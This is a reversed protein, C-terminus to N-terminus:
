FGWHATSVRAMAVGARERATAGVPPAGLALAAGLAVWSIALLVVVQKM